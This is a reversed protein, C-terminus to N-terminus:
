ARCSKVWTDYEQRATGTLKCHSDKRNCDKGYNCNGITQYKCCIPHGNLKPCTDIHKYFVSSYNETEKIKWEPVISPNIAKDQKKQKKKPSSDDNDEDSGAGRIRRPSSTPKPPRLRDVERQTLPSLTVTSMEGRLFQTILPAFDLAEFAIKTIDGNSTAASHLYESIRNDVQTTLRPIVTHDNEILIRLRHMNKELAIPWLLLQVHIYSDKGCTFRVELICNKFVAVLSWADNALEYKSTFLADINKASLNGSKSLLDIKRDDMPTAANTKADCCYFMTIGELTHTQRRTLHGLHLQDAKRNDVVQSGGLHNIQYTLSNLAQAKPTELFKMYEPTPEKPVTVKDALISAMLIATQVNEPLRQTWKQKYHKDAPGSIREVLAASTETNMSVVNALQKSILTLGALIESVEPSATPASEAPAIATPTLFMKTVRAGELLAVDDKTEVLANENIMPVKTDDRSVAWLFQLVIKLVNEVDESDRTAESAFASIATECGQYMGYLDDPYASMIAAITLPPIPVAPRPRFQDNEDDDDSLALERFAGKNALETFLKDTGPTKIPYGVADAPTDKFWAQPVRIVKSEDAFGIIAYFATDPTSATIPPTLKFCHHAIGVCVKGEESKYAFMFGAAQYGALTTLNETAERGIGAFTMFNQYADNTARVTTPDQSEYFEMWTIFASPSIIAM